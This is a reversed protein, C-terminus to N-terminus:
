AGLLRSATVILRTPSVPKVLYADAGAALGEEVDTVQGRASLLIVRPQWQADALAKIHRCAALGDLAGPMMVDLLLLRPRLVSARQAASAGDCAEHIEADLTELTWRLM